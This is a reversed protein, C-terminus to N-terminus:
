VCCLKLRRSVNRDGLLFVPASPANVSYTLLLPFANTSM